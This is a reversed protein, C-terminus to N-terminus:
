HQLLLLLLLLLQGPNVEPAASAAAGRVFAWADKESGFKKFQASPFKDVQSKCEDRSSSFFLSWPHLVESSGAWEEDNWGGVM